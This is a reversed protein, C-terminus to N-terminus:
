FSLDQVFHLIVLTLNGTNRAAPSQITGAQALNLRSRGTLVTPNGGRSPRRCYGSTSAPREAGPNM